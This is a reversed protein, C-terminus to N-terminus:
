SHLRARVHPVCRPQLGHQHDVRRAGHLLLLSITAEAAEPAQIKARAGQTHIHIYICMYRYYVLPRKQLKPHKYKQGLERHTHTHTHANCYVQRQLKHHLYKPGLETRIYTHIYTHTHSLTCVICVHCHTTLTSVSQILMCRTYIYILTHATIHMCHM